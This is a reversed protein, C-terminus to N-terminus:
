ASLGKTRATLLDGIATALEAVTPRLYLTRASIEVRYHDQLAGLLEAAILSHGGLEFFDDDVGVPEVALLDSWLEALHSQVGGTPAVYGPGTPRAVRVAPPLAGRDVKGTPGLPLEPLLIIAWPVLYTPLAERLRERLQAARASPGADAPDDAVVYAVLRKGRSGDVQAVVVADHVEPDALLEAEVEGPEVRFGQVKIQRDARGLFDLVGDPRWAVLDGTRYLRSGAPGFPNPVFREATAAPRGLYGRALGDGGAYLEGPVGVPVPQLAADLVLAQTGSVPRGVPLATGEPRTRTSWCATFTTNETPGYGNTFLLGPHRELVQAVHGPSVVDGGALLHRLTAFADPRLSALQHFLGATLWLVSVRRAVCFEALADLDIPGPPLVELRAGSALPAWIELTSADFAVPSLHLFVDDERVDLWDPGRVLRSVAAHPIAAGKPTGTSGSTFSVYALHGPRVARAALVADADEAAADEAPRDDRGDVAGDPGGVLVVRVGQPARDALHAQAVVVGAGTEGLIHAVRAAPLDADLATYAGGAKLVALLSVVLDVSREALVAVVDDVQVGAAVLRVALRAARGDLQAYTLVTGGCSVAPRDPRLLTQAAVLDAVSAAALPPVGDGGFALVRAREAATTLPLEGVPTAPRATGAAAALRVQEDMAALGDAPLSADVPLAGPGDAVPERPARAARDVLRGFGLTADVDVTVAARPVGLPGPLVGRVREAGTRRHLVAVLAALAVGDAVPPAAPAEAAAPAAPAPTEIVTM